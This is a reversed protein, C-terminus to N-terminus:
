DYYDYNLMRMFLEKRENKTLNRIIEIIGLASWVHLSNPKLGRGNHKGCDFTLDMIFETKSNLHCNPNLCKIEGKKNIKEEFGKCHEWTYIENNNCSPCKTRFTEWESM